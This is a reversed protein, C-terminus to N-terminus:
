RLSNKIYESNMVITRLKKMCNSKKNKAMQESSFSMRTAIEQMRMRQYYYALIVERCEEGLQSIIADLLATREESLLTQVKVEEVPISHYSDNLEFEPHNNILKKAWMNRCITYLYAEVNTDPRLKQQKALKYFAILGDHFIDDIDQENGKNRLIFRGVNKQVKEYLFTLAKDAEREDSSQLLRIIEGDSYNHM